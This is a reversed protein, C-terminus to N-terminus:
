VLVPYEPKDERLAPYAEELTNIDERAKKRNAYIEPYVDELRLNLDYCKATFKDTSSLYSMFEAHQMRARNIAIEEETYPIYIQIAERETWAEKVVEDYAERAEVAEVDIVKEVDKGGNPYEAIVEYHSQEEVAEVAPHHVIEAEHETVIEDDMLYGKKLDYETLEATKDQTFVRM